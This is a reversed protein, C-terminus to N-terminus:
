HISDSVHTGQLNAWSINEGQAVRAGAGVDGMHYSRGAAPKQEDPMAEEESMLVSFVPQSKKTAIM